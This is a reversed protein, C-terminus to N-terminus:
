MYLNGGLNHSANVFVIPVIYKCFVKYSLLVANLTHLDVCCCQINKSCRPTHNLHAHLYFKVPTELYSHGYMYLSSMCINPTPPM